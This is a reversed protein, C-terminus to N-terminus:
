VRIFEQINVQFQGISTLAYGFGQRVEKIFNDITLASENDSGFGSSDVFFSQTPQWGQPIAYGLLECSLVGKDNDCLAIYPQLNHKRAKKTAEGSQNQIEKLSRM